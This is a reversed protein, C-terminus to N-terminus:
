VKPINRANNKKRRSFHWYLIRCCFIKLTQRVYTHPVQPKWKLPDGLRDTNTLIIAM